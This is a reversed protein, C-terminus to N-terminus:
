ALLRFDRTQDIAEHQNCTPLTPHPAIIVRGAVKPAPKATVTTSKTQRTSIVPPQPIHRVYPFAQTQRQQMSNIECETVELMSAADEANVGRYSFKM